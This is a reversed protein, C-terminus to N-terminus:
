DGGGEFSELKRRGQLILVKVASCWYVLWSAICSNIILTVQNRKSHNQYVLRINIQTQQLPIHIIEKLNAIIGAVPKGLLVKNNSRHVTWKNTPPPPFPPPPPLLGALSHYWYFYTIKIIATSVYCLYSGCTFVEFSSCFTQVDSFCHTPLVYRMLLWCSLEITLNTFINFLFYLVIITNTTSIITIIIYITTPHHHHCHYHCHHHLM